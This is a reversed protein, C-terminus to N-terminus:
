SYYDELMQDRTVRIQEALEGMKMRIEKYGLASLNGIYHRETIKKKWPEYKPHLAKPFVVDTENTLIFYYRKYMNFKTETVWQDFKEFEHFCWNTKGDDYKFTELEVLQVFTYVATCHKYIEEKIVDGCTINDKDFFGKLNHGSLFHVIVHPLCNAEDKIQNYLKGGLVAPIVDKFDTNTEHLNRNTYSIFYDKWEAIMEYGRDFYVQLDKTWTKFVGKKIVDKCLQLDDKSQKGKENLLSLCGKVQQAEIEGDLTVDLECRLDKLAKFFRLYELDKIFSEYRKLGVGKKLKEFDNKELEENSHQAFIDILKEKDRDEM